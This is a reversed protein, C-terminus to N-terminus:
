VDIFGGSLLKTVKRTGYVVFGSCLLSTVVICVVVCIQVWIFLISALAQVSGIFVDANLIYKVWEFLSSGSDSSSLAGISDSASSVVSDVTNSDFLQNVSSRFSRIWDALLNLASPLMIYLSLFFTGIGNLLRPIFVVANVLLNLVFKAALFLESVVGMLPLKDTSSLMSNIKDMMPSPVLADIYDTM